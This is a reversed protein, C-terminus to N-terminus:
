STAGETQLRILQALKQEKIRRIAHLVDNVEDGSFHFDGLELTEAGLWNDVRNLANRALDIELQLIDM